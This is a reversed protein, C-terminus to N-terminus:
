CPGKQTKKDPQVTKYISSGNDMLVLLELNFNMVTNCCFLVSNSEVLINGLAESSSSSRNRCQHASCAREVEYM